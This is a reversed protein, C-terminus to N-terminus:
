IKMRSSVEKEVLKYKSRNNIVMPLFFVPFFTFINVGNMVTGYIAIGIMTIFIVIMFTFNSKRNKFEKELEQDNFDKLNDKIM